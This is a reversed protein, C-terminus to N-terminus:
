YGSPKSFDPGKNEIIQRSQEYYKENKGAPEAPKIDGDSRRCRDAQKM